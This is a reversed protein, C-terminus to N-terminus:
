QAVNANTCVDLPPGSHMGTNLPIWFYIFSTISDALIDCIISVVKNDTPFVSSGSKPPQFKLLGVATRPKFIGQRPVCVVFDKM